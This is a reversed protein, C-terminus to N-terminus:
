LVVIPQTDMNSLKLEELVLQLNEDHSNESNETFISSNFEIFINKLSLNLPIQLSSLKNQLNLKERRQSILKDNDSVFVKDEKKFILTTCGSAIRDGILKVWTSDTVGLSVGFLCIVSAHNIYDLAIESTNSGFENLIEPKILRYRISDKDRFSENAIQKENDVGLWVSSSPSIERHIHIIGNLNRNSAAFPTSNNTEERLYELTHTYNFTLVNVIVFTRDMPTGVIGEIKSLIADRVENYFFSEPYKFGDSVSSVSANLKLRGDQMMKDVTLLYTQLEKQIDDYIKQYESEDVVKETYQGLAEELDAWNSYHNDIYKKLRAIEESSSPCGCYYKYFDQYSTPLGLQLDFGNGIVFLINM